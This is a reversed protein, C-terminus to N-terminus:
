LLGDRGLAGLKEELVRVVRSLTPTQVRALSDSPQFHRYEVAFSTSPLAHIVYSSHCPSLFLRHSLIPAALRPLPPRALYRSKADTKCGAFYLIASVEVSQSTEEQRIIHVGFVASASLTM